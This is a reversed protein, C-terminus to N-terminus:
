RGEWEARTMEYINKDYVKGTSKVAIGKKKMEVFKLGLKKILENSAVNDVSSFIVVKKLKLDDFAYDIVRSAGEFVYGNRWYKEGIWYGIEAVGEGVKVLGIGGVVKDSPKITISFQYDKRPKEKRKEACRNFWFEVDKETYPYPIASMHRSINPNDVNKRLSIGDGKEFERLVLRKTELRM